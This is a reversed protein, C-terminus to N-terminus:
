DDDGRAAAAKAPAAGPNALRKKLVESRIEEM